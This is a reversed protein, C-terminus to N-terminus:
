CSLLALLMAVKSTLSPLPCQVRSTSNIQHASSKVVVFCPFNAALNKMLVTNMHASWQM